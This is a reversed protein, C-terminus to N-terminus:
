VMVRSIMRFGRVKCSAETMFDAFGEDVKTLAFAGGAILALTGAAAAAIVAVIVAYNVNDAAHQSPPV